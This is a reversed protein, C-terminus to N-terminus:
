IQKAFVQVYDKAFSSIKELPLSSQQLRTKNQHYWISWTTTAFLAVLLPREQILKLVDSFSNSTIRSRDVWGFDSDWIPHIEECGWLAHFIDESERACLHCVSDQLVKRRLLNEKTPLSNSCAKWIFHKIKGPVKIRWISKWFRKQVWFGDLDQWERLLCYGLKVSYNGFKELPWILLDEQPISCLPLAKIFAAKPPYFCCDILHINWWGLAQNILSSVTTDLLLVSKHTAIKGDTTNM